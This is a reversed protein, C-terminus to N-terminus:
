KYVYVKLDNFNNNSVKPNNYVYVKLDNFNNNSVKPNNYIYVNPLTWYEEMILRDLDCHRHDGVVQLCQQHLM